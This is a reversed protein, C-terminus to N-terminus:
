GEVFHLQPKWKKSESYHILGDHQLRGVVIAPTIDLEDAFAAIDSARLSPLRAPARVVHEDARSVAGSRGPGCPKCGDPEILEM